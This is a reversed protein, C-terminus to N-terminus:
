RTCPSSAVPGVPGPGGFDVAWGAEGTPAFEDSVGILVYDPDVATLKISDAMTWTIDSADGGGGVTLTHSRPLTLCTSASNATGIDLFGWPPQGPVAFKPVFAHIMLPTCGETVCTANTVLLTVEDSPASTSSCADLSGIVALGLVLRGIRPSM